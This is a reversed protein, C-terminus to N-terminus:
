IIDLLHLNLRDVEKNLSIDDGELVLCNNDVYVNSDTGKKFYIMADPDNCNKIPIDPCNEEKVCALITMSNQNRLTSILKFIVYDMTTDKETPDFLIYLKDRKLNFYPITINELDKIKYNFLYQKNDKQLIWGSETKYFKNNNYEYVNPEQSEWTFGIVSMVM